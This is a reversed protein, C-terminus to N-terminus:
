PSRHHPAEARAWRDGLGTPAGAGRSGAPKALHAYPQSYRTSTQAWTLMCPSPDREQPFTTPLGSPHLQSTSPRAALCVPFPATLNVFSLAKNESPGM